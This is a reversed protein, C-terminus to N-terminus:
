PRWKRKKQNENEKIKQTKRTNGKKTGKKKNKTQEKREMRLKNSGGLM